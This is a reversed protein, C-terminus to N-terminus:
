LSQDTKYHQVRDVLNKVAQNMRDSVGSVEEISSLLQESSAAIEQASASVEESVAAVGEVRSVVGDKAHAAKDLSTKAKTVLPAITQIANTIMEFSDVTQSIVKEQDSLLGNVEESAKIVGQTEQSVRRILEMIEESSKKSEAALNRVEDAVVAFGKGQEGARAAEIAANLALLNTQDSIANIADTINGIKEVSLGLESITEMFASFSKGISTISSTLDEVQNKGEMAKTEATQSSISVDDTNSGVTDIESAFVNLISVIETLDSAQATAGKAVDQIASTVEGTASSMQESTLTLNESFDQVESAVEKVGTVSENLSQVTQDINSSMSAIEDKGSTNLNVTLDGDSVQRMTKSIRNIPRIIGGTIVISLIIVTPALILAMIGLTMLVVRAVATKEALGVLAVYTWGFEEDRAFAAIRKSGNLTYDFSHVNKNNVAEEAGPIQTIYATLIKDTQPSLLANMTSTEVVVIYGLEGIKVHAIDQSFSELNILFGIYGVISGTASQIPAIYAVAPNDRSDKFGLSLTQQGSQTVRKFYEHNSYDMGVLAGRDSDLVVKGSIDSVFLSELEPYEQQIDALRNSLEQQLDMDGTLYQGFRPNSITDLQMRSFAHMLNSYNQQVLEANLILDDISTQKNTNYSINYIIIGMLLVPLFAFLTFYTIFKTRLTTETNFKQLIGM